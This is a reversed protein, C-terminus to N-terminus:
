SKPSTQRNKRWSRLGKAGLAMAGLALLAPASPEPVQGSALFAGSTDYAYGEITLQPFSVDNTGNALSVEVWGYRLPSGGQTSDRFTFLFYQDSFSGPRAGSATAHAAFGISAANGAPNWANGAAMPVVFSASTQLRVYGSDQRGLIARGGINSAHFGLQATGPLNNIVYNQNTQPGVTVPNASLDTFVIDARGTHPMAVAGTALALLSLLKASDATTATNRAKLQAESNAAIM